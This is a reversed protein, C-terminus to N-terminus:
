ADISAATCARAAACWPRPLHGHRAGAACGATGHDIRSGEVGVRLGDGTGVAHEGGGRTEHEVPWSVTEASGFATSASSSFAATTAVTSASSPESQGAAPRAGRKSSRWAM